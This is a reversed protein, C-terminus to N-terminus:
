CISIHELGSGLPNGNNITRINKWFMFVRPLIKVVLISDTDKSISTVRKQEAWTSSMLGKIVTGM